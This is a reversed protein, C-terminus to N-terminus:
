TLIKNTNLDKFDATLNKRDAPQAVAEFGVRESECEQQDQLAPIAETLDHLITQVQVVPSLRSSPTRNPYPRRFPIYENDAGQLHDTIKSLYIVVSTFREERTMGKSDPYKPMDALKLGRTPEFASTDRKIACSEVCVQNM